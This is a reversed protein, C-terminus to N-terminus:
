RAHCKTSSDYNKTQSETEQPEKLGDEGQEQWANIWRFVAEVKCPIRLAIEEPPMHAEWMGM